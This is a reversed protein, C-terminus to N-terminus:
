MREKLYATMRDTSLAVDLPVREGNVFVNTSSKIVYKDAEPSDNKYVALDITDGFDIKM